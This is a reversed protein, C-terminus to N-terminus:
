PNTRTPDEEFLDKERTVPRTDGGGRVKLMEDSTLIEFSPTNASKEIRSFFSKM